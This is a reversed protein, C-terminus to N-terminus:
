SLNGLSNRSISLGKLFIRMVILRNTFINKCSALFACKRSLLFFDIELLKPVAGLFNCIKSASFCIKPEIYFIFIFRDGVTQANRFAFKRSM